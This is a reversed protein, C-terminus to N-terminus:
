LNDWDELVKKQKRNLKKPIVVEVTALHDGRGSRRLHPVGKGKMRLIQGSQTGVPIKLEVSGDVTEVGFTGGLAALPMPIQETTWIDFGDRKFKRHPRVTVTVYLDGSLGGKGIAEGEKVVRLIEGNNIGAPIKLRLEKEGRVIGVGRCKKCPTEPQRGQGDCVRCTSVTQFAGFVSQRVSRVQGKGNCEKCAVLKTGPDAGHGGCEPCEMDRLNKLSKELGFVAEKFDIRIEMEIHRGRRPRNASSQGGGFIDGFIEGLDGM